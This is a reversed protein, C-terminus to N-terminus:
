HHQHHDDHHDDDHPHDSASHTHSAHEIRATVYAAGVGLLLCASLKIRDHTHFQIEPLLDSLSICLFVGASFALAYSALVSDHAVADIRNLYLYFLVAGVPCTLGFVRNVLRRRAVSFGGATMLTTIAMADLPKHLLIAAFTSFGIWTGGHGSHAGAQVGAAMAIGDLLSHITLGIGIGVWSLPHQHVHHSHHEHHHHEHDHGHEDHGHGGHRHEGHRHEGHRHEGHRNEDAHHHVFTENALALTDPMGQKPPPSLPEHQHFHFARLLFFMTLLGGMVWLVAHDLNAPPEAAHPLMVFMAVGLMLGAVFSMMMQMRRHNFRMLTPLWGGFLSALLTLLCYLGLLGITQMM